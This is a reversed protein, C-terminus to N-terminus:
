TGLLRSCIRLTACRKVPPTFIEFMEGSDLVLFHLGCKEVSPRSILPTKASQNRVM